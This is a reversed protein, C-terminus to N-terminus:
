EVLDEAANAGARSPPGDLAILEALVELTEKPVTKDYIGILDAPQPYVKLAKWFAVAAELKNSGDACLGEGMAVQQMFFAEKEELDTPWGDEKAKALAKKIEEKQAGEAAAEQQKVVKEVVKNKKNLSKRFTVDTRRRHDFYVAYAVLGTLVTGAVIATNRFAM